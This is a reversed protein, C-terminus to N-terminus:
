WHSWIAQDFVKQWFSANQVIICKPELKLFLLLLSEGENLILINQPDVSNPRSFVNFLIFAIFFLTRWCVM